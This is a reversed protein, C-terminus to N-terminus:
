PSSVASCSKRAGRLPATNVQEFVSFPLTLCLLIYIDRHNTTSSVGKQIKVFAPPKHIMPAKLTSRVENYKNWFLTIETTETQKGM